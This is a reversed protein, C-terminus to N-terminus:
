AFLFSCTKCLAMAPLVSRIIYSFFSRATLDIGDSIVLRLSGVCM